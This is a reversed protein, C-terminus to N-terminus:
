HVSIYSVPPRTRVLPNLLIKSHKTSVGKTYLRMTKYNDKTVLCPARMLMHLLRTNCFCFCIAFFSSCRANVSLYVLRSSSPHVACFVRLYWKEAIQIIFLEIATVFLQVSFALKCANLLMYLRTRANAYRVM